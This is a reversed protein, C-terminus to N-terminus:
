GRLLFDLGALSVNMAQAKASTPFVLDSHNTYQNVFNFGLPPRQIKVLFISTRRPDHIARIFVDACSKNLKM